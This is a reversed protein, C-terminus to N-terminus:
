AKPTGVKPTKWRRFGGCAAIISFTGRLSLAYPYCYPAYPPRSRGDRRRRALRRRKGDGSDAVPPSSPFRGEFLSTMSTAILRTRPVVGETVGEAHWRGRLPLDLNYIFAIRSETMETLSRPPSPLRTDPPIARNQPPFRLSKLIRVM